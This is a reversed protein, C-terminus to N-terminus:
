WIVVARLAIRIYPNQAADIALIQAAWQKSAAGLISNVRADAVRGIAFPDAGIVMDPHHSWVMGEGAPGLSANIDARLAQLVAKDQQYRLIRAQLGAVGEESIIEQIANKHAALEAAFEDPNPFGSPKVFHTAELETVPVGASGLSKFKPV